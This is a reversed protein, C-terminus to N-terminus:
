QKENILKDIINQVKIVGNVPITCVKIKKFILDDIINKFSFNSISNISVSKIFNIKKDLM